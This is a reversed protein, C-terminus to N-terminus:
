SAPPPPLPKSEDLWLGRSKLLEVDILSAEPTFDNQAAEIVPDTLDISKNLIEFVQEPELVVDTRKRSAVQLVRPRLRERFTLVTARQFRQLEGMIESNGKQVRAQFASYDAQVKSKQEETQAAKAAAVLAQEEPALSRQLAAFRTRALAEKERMASALRDAVGLQKFARDMNVVGVRSPRLYTMSLALVGVLVIVYAAEYWRVSKKGESM